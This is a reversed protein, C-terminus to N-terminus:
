AAYEAEASELDDADPEPPPAGNHSSQEDPTTALRHAAESEPQLPAATSRSVRTFQSVGRTLDHGVSFAELEVSTGKREESEWQRVRLRGHVVVPDGKHVCELVNQALQRWCNVTVYNTEGDVWLGKGRDYRRETSAFRFSAVDVGQKTTAQRIDAVVNGVMTVLTANV